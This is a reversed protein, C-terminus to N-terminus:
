VGSPSESLCALGAASSALGAATPFTNRSAIRVGYADWDGAAVVMEGTAEDRKETALARVQRIVAQFRKNKSVDEESSLW